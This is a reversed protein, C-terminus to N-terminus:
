NIDIGEAETVWAKASADSPMRWDARPSLTVSGIKTGDPMCSRKYQQTFFRKCFVILWRKITKPAFEKDFALCALEFIHTPRRGWRITHYLFFDHLAYPGVIEETQQDIEGNVTPLLEPSVPTDLIDYLVEGLKDGVRGAEYEVVAKVLTKPVGANVAYMSMHDGNYTAFGLALESLDGTGVVLGNEKNALDMLILTRTRAQANEYTTDITIGNHGIDKFHQKVSAHIDIERLTVGVASCLLEANTRTRSSTGFCPMTVAVVDNLSKNLHNFARLICLLALTSDLGGSLGIVVKECGTHAIRQVLGMSQLKLIMECRSSWETSSHPIFPRADIKRTITTAQKPMSFNIISYEDDVTTFTNMKGRDHKIAYLDIDTVAPQNAFPPAEALLYGNEAILQHGAYVTDTTSEGFGANAYLYACVLRQSSNKVLATRFEAKGVTENSASLNCIVTAGNQAHQTSPPTAAWFDECIEIALMFDKEEDWNFILKTGFPIKEGFFDVCSNEKPASAFYRMEYFEGYNPLYTKPVFGLLNGRCFVAAVNYLKGKVQLPLGVIFVTNFRKSEVVLFRLTDQADSLLKEQLFLDGCTYGTICLEQFCVLHIPQMLQMKELISYGNAMCNAVSVVSNTAVVKLFNM